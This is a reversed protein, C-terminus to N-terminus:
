GARLSSRISVRSLDCLKPQRSLCMGKRRRRVLVTEAGCNAAELISSWRQQGLPNPSDGRWGGWAHGCIASGTVRPRATSGQERQSSRNRSQLCLLALAFKRIETALHRLSACMSPCRQFTLRDRPSGSHLCFADPARLRHDCSPDDIKPTKSACGLGQQPRSDPSM